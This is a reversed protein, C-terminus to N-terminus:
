YETGALVVALFAVDNRFKAISSKVLKFFCFCRFSFIDRLSQLCAADIESYYFLTIDIVFKFATEM